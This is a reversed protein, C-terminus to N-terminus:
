ALRANEELYARLVKYFDLVGAEEIWEDPGHADGGSPRIVITPINKKAFYQADSAGLSHCTGPSHGLVQEVTAMFSAIAPHTIDTEGSDVEALSKFTLGHDEILSEILARYKKYDAEDVFRMDLTAEAHDPVQNVAHGGRIQSVTLSSKLPEM